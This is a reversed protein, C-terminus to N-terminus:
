LFQKFLRETDSFNYYSRETGRNMKWNFLLGHIIGHWFHLVILSLFSIILIREIIRQIKLDKKNECKSKPDMKALISLIEEIGINPEASFFQKIELINENKQQEDQCFNFLIYALILQKKLIM